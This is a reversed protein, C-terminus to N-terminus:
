SSGGSSRERCPAPLTWWTAQAELHVIVLCPPIARDLGARLRRRQDVAEVEARDVEALRAADEELDGRQAGAERDVLGELVEALLERQRGIVLM